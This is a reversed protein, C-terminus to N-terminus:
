DNPPLNYYHYAYGILKVRPACSKVKEAIRNYFTFYRRSFRQWRVVGAEDLVKSESSESFNLGDLPSLLFRTVKPNLKYDNCINNAIVEAVIENGTEEKWYSKTENMFRFPDRSGDVLAYYEPHEEYYVWPPLWFDMTHIREMPVSFPPFPLNPDTIFNTKNRLGWIGGDLGRLNFAPSLTENTLRVSLTPKSPIVTGLPDPIYWQVGLRELFEYTGFLTGSDAGGVIAIKKGVYRIAFVEPGLGKKFPKGFTTNGIHIQRSLLNEGEKAIIFSSGTIKYLYDKLEMAAFEEASTPNNSIVISALAVGNNSIRLTEALTYNGSFVIILFSSFIFYLLQPKQM